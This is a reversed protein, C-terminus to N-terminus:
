CAISATEVQRTRFISPAPRVASSAAAFIPRSHSARRLASTRMNPSTNGFPSARLRCNRVKLGDCKERCFEKAEFGTKEPIFELFRCCCLKLSNGKGSDPWHGLVQYL